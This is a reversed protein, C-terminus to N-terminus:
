VAAYGMVGPYKNGKEILVRESIIKGSAMLGTAIPVVRAFCNEINCAEGGPQISPSLTM